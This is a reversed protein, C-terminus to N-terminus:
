ARLELPVACLERRFVDAAGRWASLDGLPTADPPLPTEEPKATAGSHAHVSLRRGDRLLLQRAWAALEAQPVARM